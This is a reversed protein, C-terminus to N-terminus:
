VLPPYYKRRDTCHWNLPLKCNLRHANNTCHLEQIKDDAFLKDPKAYKCKTNTGVALVSIHEM